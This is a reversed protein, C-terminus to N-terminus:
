RSISYYYYCILHYSILVITIITITDRTEEISKYKCALSERVIEPVPRTITPQVHPIAMTPKHAAKAGHAISKPPAAGGSSSVTSDPIRRPPPLAGYSSSSSSSSPLSISASASQLPVPKSAPASPVPMSGYGRSYLDLNLLSPPPPPPGVPIICIKIYM